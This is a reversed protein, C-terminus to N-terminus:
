AEGVAKLRELEQPHQDRLEEESLTGTLFVKNMPFDRPNWHAQYFHFTLLFLVALLAESTHFIFPLGLLFTSGYAWMLVGPVGLIVMGWYIGWYDFKQTYDYKGYKPEEGRGLLMFKTNQLAETIDERGLMMPIHPHEGRARAALYGFTYFGFHYAVLVGLFIAALLHVDMSVALGGMANIVVRGWAEYYVQAFGTVALIAVTVILWAHQIRQNLDFRKIKPGAVRRVVRRTGKSVIDMSNHLVAFLVLYTILIRFFLTALYPLSSIQFPTIFIWPVVDLLLWSIALGSIASFVVLSGISRHNFVPNM